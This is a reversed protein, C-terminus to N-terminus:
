QEGRYQDVDSCISEESTSFVSRLAPGRAAVGIPTIPWPQGLWNRSESLSTGDLEFSSQSSKEHVFGDYLGDHLVSSSGNRGGFDQGSVNHSSATFKTGALNSYLPVPEEGLPLYDLNVTSPPLPIFTDLTPISKVSLMIQSPNKNSPRTHVPRVRSIPAHACADQIKSQAFKVASSVRSGNMQRQRRASTSRSSPEQWSNTDSSAEPIMQHQPPSSVTSPINVAEVSCAVRHLEDAIVPFNLTLIKRIKKLWKQSDKALKSDHSLEMWQWLLSFGSLLLM